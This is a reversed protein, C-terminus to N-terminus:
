AADPTTALRKFLAVNRCYDPVEAAGADLRGACDDVEACTMCAVVAERRRFPPLAGTEAAGDLDVGAVVAMRGMLTRHREIMDTM